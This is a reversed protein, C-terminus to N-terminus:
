AQARLPFFRADPTAAFFDRVFVGGTVHIPVRAVSFRARDACAAAVRPCRGM